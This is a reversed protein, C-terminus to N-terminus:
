RPGLASPLRWNALYLCHCIAQDRSEVEMEWKDGESGLVTEKLAWPLLAGKVVMLM